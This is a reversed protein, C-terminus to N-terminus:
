IAVPSAEDSAWRGLLEVGVITSVGPEEMTVGYVWDAAEMTRPNHTIVIFQTEAKFDDLLQLFHVVNSDDLPADVEDLVCFPSPKVLYLAFLLALATLTREGGSLLHIRQTRKGRPSAQIEVNCELPDEADALWIDCEGGQFLSQFVRQFNERVATFTEMFAERATRNIQRIAAVLDNRAADLDDRQGTLFELRAEEEAHERVALVNVPGIVELQRALDNLEARWEAVGGEEVERASEVLVEWPRAWEVEVREVSREGRSRLEAIRLELSHREGAAEAERKGAGRAAEAAEQEAADLEALRGDLRVVEAAERDREGFLREIEVGAEGGIGSLEEMGRRLEAIERAVSGQRAAAAALGQEVVGRRREADRLEAEARAASVRLEAEQDRAEEWRAELEALRGRASVEATAVSTAEDVLVRLRADLAALRDAAAAANARLGVLSEAARERDEGLRTLHHLHSVSDLDVRKLEAELRRREAEAEVARKEAASLAERLEDRAAEVAGREVEVQEQERQLRALSERRALIGEGGGRAVLRVVGREDVVEGGSGVRPRREDDGLPDGGALSVGELLADAWAEGSPEGRGHAIFPADLPLLVLSGGGTWEEFFWSRVRAAAAKDDVVVAQLLSGLYAEIRELEERGERPRLFDALPSWVGSSRDFRAM